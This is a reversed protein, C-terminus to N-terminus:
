RTLRAERGRLACAVIRAVVGDLAGFVEHEGVRVVHWGLKGLARGVADSRLKALIGPM